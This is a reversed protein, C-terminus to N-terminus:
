AAQTAGPESPLFKTKGNCVQKYSELWEKAASFTLGGRQGTNLATTNYRSMVAVDVTTTDGGYVAVVCNQGLPAIAVVGGDALQGVTAYLEGIGLKKLEDRTFFPSPQSTASKMQDFGPTKAAIDGRVTPRTDPAAAQTTAAPKAASSLRANDASTCGGFMLALVIAIAAAM